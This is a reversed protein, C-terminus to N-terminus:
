GFINGFGGLDIGDILDAVAGVADGAVGELDIEDPIIEGVRERTARVAEEFGNNNAIGQFQSLFNNIIEQFTDPQFFESISEIVKITNENTILNNINSILDTLAPVIEVIEASNTAAPVGPTTPIPEVPSAENDMDDMDGMGDVMPRNVLFDLFFGTFREVFFSFVPDDLSDVESFCDVATDFFIKYIKTLNHDFDMMLIEELSKDANDLLLFTIQNKNLNISGNTLQTIKTFIDNLTLSLLDAATNSELGLRVNLPPMTPEIAHRTYRTAAEELDPGPGPLGSAVGIFIISFNILFFQTM